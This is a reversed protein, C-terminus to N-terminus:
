TRVKLHLLGRIPPIGQTRVKSSRDLVYPIVKPKLNELERFESYVEAIKTADVLEGKSIRERILKRYAAEFEPDLSKLQQLLAKRASADLNAFLTSKSSAAESPAITAARKYADREKQLEAIKAVAQNHEQLLQKYQGSMADIKNQQENILEPPADSKELNVLKQKEKQLESGTYTAELELMKVEEKVDTLTDDIVSPAVKSEPSETSSVSSHVQTGAPAVLANYAKVNADSFSIRRRETSQVDVSFGHKQLEVRATRDFEKITAKDMDKNWGQTDKKVGIVWGDRFQILSPAFPILNDITFPPASM